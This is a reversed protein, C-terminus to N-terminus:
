EAKPQLTKVFDAIGQQEHRDWWLYIEDQLFYVQAATLLKVKSLLSVPDAEYRSIGSELSEFDEMHAIFAGQNCQMRAGSTMTGNLSSIIAILEDSTFNVKRLEALSYARIALFGEIAKQAGDYRTKYTEILDKEDQDSIKTSINKMETLKLCLYIIICVKTM